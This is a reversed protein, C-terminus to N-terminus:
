EEEISLLREIRKCFRIHLIYACKFFDAANHVQVIGVTKCTESCTFKGAVFLETILNCQTFTIHRDIKRDQRKPNDEAQGPAPDLRQMPQQPDQDANGWNAQITERLEEALKVPWPQM